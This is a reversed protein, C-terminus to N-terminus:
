DILSPFAYVNFSDQTTSELVTNGWELLLEEMGVTAQPTVTYPKMLITLIAKSIETAEFKAVGLYKTGM